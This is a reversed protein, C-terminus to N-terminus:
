LPIEQVFILVGWFSRPEIAIIGPVLLISPDVGFNMPALRPASFEVLFTFRLM